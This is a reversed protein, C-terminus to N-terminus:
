TEYDFSINLHGNSVAFDMTNAQPTVFKLHMNTLDIFAQTILMTEMREQEADEFDQQRQAENQEFTSQQAASIEHDSTATSHDATATSHDGDARTHDTEARTHDTEARTHDDNATVHDQAAQTHDTAATTHDTEARTHDSNATSHDTEARTHDSVAQTHDSGATQHDTTAYNHDNVATSHDNTAVTHDSTAQEHDRGAQVHDAEITERLQELGTTAESVQAALDDIPKKFTAMPVHRYEQFQNDINPDYPRTFKVAPLSVATDIENLELVEIDGAEINKGYEEQCALWNERFEESVAM